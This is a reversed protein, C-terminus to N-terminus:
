VNKDEEWPWSEKEWAFPTANLNNSTITLPGYKAEYNKMLENGRERYDNFLAIMSTDNPYNDLYLNLEHAAFQIRSLELLLKERENNAKLNVPQYNKYPDYLNVFLNGNDYAVTPTFLSPTTNMQNNNKNPLLSNMMDMNENQYMFSNNRYMDTNLYNYNNYM